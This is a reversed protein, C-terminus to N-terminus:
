IWIWRNSSNFNGTHFLFHSLISAPSVIINNSTRSQCNLYTLLYTLAKIMMQCVCSTLMFYLYFFSVCIFYFYFVISLFSDKYLMRNIFNKKQVRNLNAPLCRNHAKPWMDYPVNKVPPLLHHLVHNRNVMMRKLFTSGANNCLEAFSKHQSPLYQLKELRSLISEYRSHITCVM